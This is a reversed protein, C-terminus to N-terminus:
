VFNEHAAPTFLENTTLNAIQGRCFIRCTGNVACPGGSRRWITDFDEVSLDGLLADPHEMKNTCRWVGGNPTIVTQLASWHCTSYGHGRWDRYMKFRAVDAIVFPDGRYQEMLSVAESIWATDEALVGPNDQDYAILPRFQCYDVGLRRALAQMNYAQRYNDACLLFGMGLTASGPLTVLNRINECVREFRNVGKHHKYSEVDYADFSIYIWKFHQKMWAAREDRLHGGHTYVGQELGVSHACKVIDDFRPHITPEGGGSWTVSKVGVAALQEVVDCALDYDMLDGSAIAGHPKDAHGAWPGRTHTYSYHCMQCRLDCRNSLMVEANIPALYEGRKLAALHEVHHLLKHRPDIFSTM